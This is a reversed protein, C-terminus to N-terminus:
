YELILYMKSNAIKIEKLLVSAMQLEPISDDIKYILISQLYQSTLKELTQKIPTHFEKPINNLDLKVIEVDQFYFSKEEKKYLLTGSVTVNGKLVLTQASEVGVDFTINVRNRENKLKLHPNSVVTIFLFSEKKYPFQQNIKQQLMEETIEITHSLGLLSSTFLFFITFLIKM